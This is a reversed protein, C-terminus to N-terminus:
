LLLRQGWSRLRGAALKALMLPNRFRHYQPHDVIRDADQPNQAPLWRQGEAACAVLVAENREIYRRSMRYATKTAAPAPGCEYDYRRLLEHCVLDCVPRLEEALNNKWAYKRSGSLRDSVQAKWGENPTSVDAASRGFQLMDPEYEEGLLGCIAQLSQEPQDVIDEYRVTMTLSDNQLFAEAAWNWERWLYVNVLPRDSFTPLKCTSLGVDRPDRLIRIIRANPWHRRIAPLNLIHNPTKEVWRRKGRKQAFPETLSELMAAVSPERASLFERIAGIDQEFLSIVPQEALTLTSLWHVAQEPWNPDEVAAILAEDPLKSFFQTEPGASFASHSSLMAALMTTGSRPAGVIFVPSKAENSLRCAEM